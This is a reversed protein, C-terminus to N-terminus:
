KTSTISTLSGDIQSLYKNSYTRFMNTEMYAKRKTSSYYSLSNEFMTLAHEVYRAIETCNPTGGTVAANRYKGSVAEFGFPHSTPVEEKTKPVEEESSAAPRISVALAVTGAIFM